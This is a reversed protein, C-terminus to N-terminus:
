TRSERWLYYSLFGAVLGAALFLVSSIYYAPSYFLRALALITITLASGLGAIYGTRRGAITLIFAAASLSGVFVGCFIGLLSYHTAYWTAYRGPDALKPHENLLEYLALSLGVITIFFLMTILVTRLM